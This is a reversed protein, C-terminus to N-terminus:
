NRRMASRSTSRPIAGDMKNTNVALIQHFFNPKLATPTAAPTASQKDITTAYKQGDLIRVGTKNTRPSTGRNWFTQGSGVRM